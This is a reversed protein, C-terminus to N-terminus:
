KALRKMEDAHELIALAMRGRFRVSNRPDSPFSNVNPSLGEFLAIWGLTFHSTYMYGLSLSSESDGPASLSFVYGYREDGRFPIVGLTLLTWTPIATNGSPIDEIRAMLNPANSLRDLHDVEVFLGTNRLAAVLAESYPPAEHRVVGVTYPLHAAKWKAEEAQSLKPPLSTCGWGVCGTELVMLVLLASVLWFRNDISLFRLFMAM